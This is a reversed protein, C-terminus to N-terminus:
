GPRPRHRRRGQDGRRRDHRGIRDGVPDGSPATGHDEALSRFFHDIPLHPGRVEGRPALELVGGAITLITGPPIVYVHDPAVEQGHTAEAIPLRCGKALLEVLHSKHGPDLHQVLVFAMGTKEPLQSLLQGAAELGGASAGIGVVPFTPDGHTAGSPSEDDPRGTPSEPRRSDSMPM